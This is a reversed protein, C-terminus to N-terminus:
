MSLADFRLRQQHVPLQDQRESNVGDREDRDDIKAERVGPPAHLGPPKKERGDDAHHQRRAQPFGTRKKREVGIFRGSLQESLEDAELVEGDDHGDGEDKQGQDDAAARINGPM